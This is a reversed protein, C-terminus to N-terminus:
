GWPLAQEQGAVGGGGAARHQAGAAYTTLVARGLHAPPKPAQAAALEAPSEPRAQPPFPGAHPGTPASGVVGGLLALSMPERGRFLVETVLYITGGGM